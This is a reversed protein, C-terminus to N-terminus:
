RTGVFRAFFGGCVSGVTSMAVLITAVGIWVVLSQGASVTGGIEASIQAQFLVFPVGLVVTLVGGLLMGSSVNHMTNGRELYGMVAGGVLPTAFVSVLGSIAINRYEFSAV